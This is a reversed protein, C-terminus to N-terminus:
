KSDPSKKTTKKRDKRWRFDSTNTALGQNLEWAESATLEKKQPTGEWVLSHTSKKM